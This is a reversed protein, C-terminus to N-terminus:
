ADVASDSGRVYSYFKGFIVDSLVGHEGRPLDITERNRCSNFGSTMSNRMLTRNGLLRACFDVIFGVNVDSTSM